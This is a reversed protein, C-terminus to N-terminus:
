SPHAVPSGFRILNGDPDVHNGEHMGWETDMAMHVDVGADRWERSLDDADDVWIYAASTTTKPDHDRVVTLHIEVGDRNAYGYGGGAYIRTAFGLRAYHDLAATLDSVPFIAAARHMTTM